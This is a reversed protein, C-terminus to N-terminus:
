GVPGLVRGDVVRLILDGFRVIADDPDGAAVIGEGLAAAVEELRAGTWRGRSDPRHRRLNPAAAVVVEDVIKVADEIVVGKADPYALIWMGRDCQCAVPAGLRNRVTDLDRGILSQDGQQTVCAGLAALTLM